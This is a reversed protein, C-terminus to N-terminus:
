PRIETDQVPPPVLAVRKLLQSLGVPPVVLMAPYRAVPVGPLTAGTALKLALVLPRVALKESEEVSLSPEIADREHFKPSPVELM